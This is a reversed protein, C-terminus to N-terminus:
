CRARLTACRLAACTLSTFAVSGGVAWARVTGAGPNALVCNNSTPSQAQANASPALLAACLAVAALAGLALTLPRITM